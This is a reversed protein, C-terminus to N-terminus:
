GILAGGLRFICYVFLALMIFSACWPYDPLIERLYSYGTNNSNRYEYEVVVPDYDGIVSLLVAKLGSTSEPTIPAVSMLAVSVPLDTDPNIEEIEESAVNENTSDPLTDSEGIESVDDEIVEVKDKLDSIQNQMGNLVMDLYDNGSSAPVEFEEPPEGEEIELNELDIAFSNVTFSLALIVSM